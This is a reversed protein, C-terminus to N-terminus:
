IALMNYKEKASLEPNFIISSFSACSKDDTGLYKSNNKIIDFIYDIKTFEPNTIAYGCTLHKVQDNIREWSDAAEILSLMEEKNLM